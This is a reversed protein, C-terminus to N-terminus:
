RRSHLVLIRGALKKRSIKIKQFEKEKGIKRGFRRMGGEM